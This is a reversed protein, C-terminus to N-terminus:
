KLYPALKAELEEPTREGIIMVAMKGSGDFIFSAPLAGSWRKDMANIFADDSTDRIIYSRFDVGLAGLTPAVDAGSGEDDASVLILRLGEAEHRRRLALLGPMEDKCWKCWTAWVNVLVVHGSDARIAERLGSATVTDVPPLATGGPSAPALGLLCLLFLTM